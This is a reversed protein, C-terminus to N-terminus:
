GCFLLDKFGSQAPPLEFGRQETSGDVNQKLVLPRGTAYDCRLWYMEEGEETAKSYIRFGGLRAYRSPPIRVKRVVPYAKRFSPSYSKGNVELMVTQTCSPAEESSINPFLRLGWVDKIMITCNWLRDTSLLLDPLVENVFTVEKDDDEEQGEHLWMEAAGGGQRIELIGDEAGEKDPSQRILVPTGKLTNCGIYTNTETGTKFDKTTWVWAGSPLQMEDEYLIASAQIFEDYQNWGEVAVLIDSNCHKPHRLAHRMKQITARIEPDSTTTTTTPINYPVLGLDSVKIPYASPPSPGSASIQHLSRTTAALRALCLWPLLTLFPKRESPAAHAM